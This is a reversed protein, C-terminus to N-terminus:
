PTHEMVASRLNALPAKLQTVCSQVLLCRASSPRVKVFVTRTSCETCTDEEEGQSKTPRYRSITTNLLCDRNVQRSHWSKLTLSNLWNQLTRELGEGEVQELPDLYWSQCHKCLAAMSVCLKLFVFNDKNGVCLGLTRMSTGSSRKLRM